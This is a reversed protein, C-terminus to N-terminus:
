IPTTSTSRQNVCRPRRTGSTGPRDRARRVQDIEQEDLERAAVIEWVDDEDDIEQALFGIWRGEELQGVVFRSRTGVSVFLRGNSELIRWLDRPTIGYEM